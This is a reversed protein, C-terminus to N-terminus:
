PESEAKEIYTDLISVYDPVPRHWASKPLLTAKDRELLRAPQYQMLGSLSAGAAVIELAPIQLTNRGPFANAIREIAADDEPLGYSPVLVATNLVYFTSYPLTLGHVQVTPLREITLRQGRGDEVSGLREAVMELPEALSGEFQHGVFVKGPAFYACTQRLEIPNLAASIDPEIWIVRQAGLWHSLIEYAALKSVGQNRRDDLATAALAIISGQGDSCFASGELTLPARFRRVEAEGLLAHALKEDNEWSSVQSGWGDFRWDVAASGGKGDVLFTPGYDRLRASDHPLEMVDAKRGCLTQIDGIDEPCGLITVPELDKVVNAIHAVAEKFEINTKTRGRDNGPWAIWSRAHRCWEAPLYFGDDSPRSIKQSSSSMM